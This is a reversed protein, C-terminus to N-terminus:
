QWKLCSFPAKKDCIYTTCSAQSRNKRNCTNCGDSWAKCTSPINIGIAKLKKKEIFNAPLTLKKKVIPQKKVVKIKTSKIEEPINVIAEKLLIVPKEINTPIQATQSKNNCGLITFVIIALYLNKIM